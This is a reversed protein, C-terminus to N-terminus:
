ATRMFLREIPVVKLVRYMCSLGVVTAAIVTLVTIMEGHTAAAVFSQTVYTPINGVPVELFNNFISAIHLWQALLAAAAGLFLGRWMMSHTLISVGYSYYVRRMIQNQLQKTDM